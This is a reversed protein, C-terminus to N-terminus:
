PMTANGVVVLCPRIRTSRAWLAYWIFAVCAAMWACQAACTIWAVSVARLSCCGAMGATGLVLAAFLRAVVALRAANAAELVFELVIAIASLSAGLSLPILLPKVVCYSSPLLLDVLQEGFVTMVSLGIVFTVGLQALWRKLIPVIILGNADRVACYYQPRYLLTLVRSTVMFGQGCLASAIGYAGTIERDVAFHVLWRDGLALFWGIAGCAMMQGLHGALAPTLSTTNAARSLPFHPASCTLTRRPIATLHACGWMLLLMISSNPLVLLSFCTAIVRVTSERMERLTLGANDGIANQAALMADRLFVSLCLAGTVAALLVTAPKLVVLVGACFLTTLLIGCGMLWYMGRFCNEMAAQDRFHPHFRHFTNALPTAFLARVAGIFTM